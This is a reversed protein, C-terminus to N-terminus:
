FPHDCMCSYPQAGCISCMLSDVVADDPATLTDDGVYEGDSDSTDGAMRNLHAEYEDPDIPADTEVLAARAKDNHNEASKVIRCCEVSARVVTVVIIAVVVIFVINLINAITM